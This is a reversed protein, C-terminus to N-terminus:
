VRLDRTNYAVFTTVLALLSVGLCCVIYGGNLSMEAIIAKASFVAFPSLLRLWDLSPMMGVIIYITYGAFITLAIMRGARRPLLAAAATGLLYFVIQIISVAVVMLTVEQIVGDIPVFMAISVLSSVWIVINLIVLSTFGALLKQLVIRTRSVPKPFLFEATHDREERGLTDVGTMGAHIAAVVAIYLLLIGYYGAITTIDLGSMGFITQMSQPFQSFMDRVAQGGKAITDFKFMSMYILAVM